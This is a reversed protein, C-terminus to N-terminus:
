GTKPTLTISIARGYQKVYRRSGRKRLVRSEARFLADTLGAPVTFRAVYNGRRNPKAQGVTRYRGCILRKIIVPNRRGLVSRKVRGRLTIQNGRATISRSALSQPLKLRISRIAGVRAQYLTKNFVKRSPRRVRATFQGAANSRVTALRRRTYNAFIGVSQGALRASVLGNLV